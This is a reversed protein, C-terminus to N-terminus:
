MALSNCLQIIPCLVPFPSVNKEFNLWNKQFLCEKNHQLCTHKIELTTFFNVAIKKALKRKTNVFSKKKKAM